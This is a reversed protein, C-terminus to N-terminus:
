DGRTLPPQASLVREGCMGASSRRPPAHRAAVRDVQARPLRGTASWM